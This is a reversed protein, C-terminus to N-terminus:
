NAGSAKSAALQKETQENADRLATNIDKDGKVVAAFAADLNGSPNVGTPTPLLIPAFKSPILGKINKGKMRPVDSALITELGPIKVVPFSGATKARDTQVEPSILESIALFADEKHKSTSSVSFYYPTVGAGVGVTDPFVPLQVVDYRIDDPIVTPSAAQSNLMVNMALRRDKIFMDFTPTAAVYENGPIQFFRSFQRFMDPWKGVGLRAKGTAADIMEEGYQNNGWYGSLRQFGFGAYQVGGDFRTLMQAASYVDEWTMGDRLYPVAFKDFLDQNYILVSHLLTIPFANLVNNNIKKFYDLSAPEIGTLDLKNTKSLETIDFDAYGAEVITRYSSGSGYFLDIETKTAVVDAFKTSDKNNLWKFSLHPHKKQMYVGYVEMFREYSQDSGMYYVTLEVPKKKDEAQQAPENGADQKVCAPLVAIALLLMAAKWSIPRM